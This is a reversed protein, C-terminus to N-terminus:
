LNESLKATAPSFSQLKKRREVEENAYKLLNPVPSKEVDKYKYDVDFRVGYQRGSAYEDIRDFFERVCNENDNFNKVFIYKVIVRNNDSCDEGYRKINNFVDYFRDVNKIKKYLEPNGCDPSIILETKINSKLLDHFPEFYSIGSSFLSFYATNNNKFFEILDPMEKLLTPEGGTIYVKLNDGILNEKKLNELLPLADYCPSKHIENTIKKDTVCNNVCYICNANCDFWHSIYFNEFKVDNVNSWDFDPKLEFCDKCSKPISGGKFAKLFMSSKYLVNKYNVSSPKKGFIVGKANSSCSKIIYAHLLLTRYLHRCGFTM